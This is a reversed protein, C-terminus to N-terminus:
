ILFTCLRSPSPVRLRLGPPDEVALTAFTPLEVLIAITTPAPAVVENSDANAPTAPQLVDHDSAVCCAVPALQASNRTAMADTDMTMSMGDMDACCSKSCAPRHAEARCTLTASAAPALLLLVLVVSVFQFLRRMSKSKISGCIRSRTLRFNKWTDPM